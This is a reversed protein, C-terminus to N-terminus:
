VGAEGPAWDLPCRLGSRYAQLTRLTESASRGVDGANVTLSVLVGEPDLIATARFPHGAAEDLVGFMRSVAHTPDALLPFPLPGLGGQDLPAQIWARHSYVSDCSIGAVVAEEAAFAEHLAAFGRLETPCVFTFDLPYFVLVLWRGRAEASVFPQDLTDLSSTSALTFAPVPQGIRAFSAESM